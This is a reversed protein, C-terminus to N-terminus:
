PGHPNEVGVSSRAPERWKARSSESRGWVGSSGSTEARWGGFGLPLRGAQRLSRVDGGTKRKGNEDGRTSQFFMLFLIIGKVFFNKVFRETFSVQNPQETAVGGFAGM